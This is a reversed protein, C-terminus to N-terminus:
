SEQEKKQVNELKEKVKSIVVELIQEREEYSLYKRAVDIVYQERASLEYECDISEGVIDEGCIMEFIEFPNLDLVKAIINVTSVSPTRLSNEYLHVASQSTHLLDALEQQTLNHEKRYWKLRESLEMFGERRPFILVNKVVEIVKYRKTM